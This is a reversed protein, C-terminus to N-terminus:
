SCIRRTFEGWYCWFNASQKPTPFALFVVLTEVGDGDFLKAAAAVSVVARRPSAAVSQKEFM